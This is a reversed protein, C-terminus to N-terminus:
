FVVFYHSGKIYKGYEAIDDVIDQALTGTYFDEPDEAIRTLTDGLKENTM